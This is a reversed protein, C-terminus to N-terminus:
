SRITRKSGTEASIHPTAPLEIKKRASNPKKAARAPPAGTIADTVRTVKQPAKAIANVAPTPARKPTAAQSGTDLFEVGLAKCRVRLFARRQLRVNRWKLGYSAVWVGCRM